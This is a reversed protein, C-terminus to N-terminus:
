SKNAPRRYDRLLKKLDRRGDYFRLVRIGSKDSNIEYLVIWPPISHQLPEGDLNAQLRGIGPRTALLSFKDKIRYLVGEARMSGSRRDIFA